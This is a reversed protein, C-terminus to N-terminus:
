QMKQQPRTFIKFWSKKQGDHFVWNRPSRSCTVMKSMTKKFSRKVRACTSLEEEFLRCRVSELAKCREESPSRRDFELEQDRGRPKVNGSCSFLRRTLVIDGDEDTFRDTVNTGHGDIIPSTLRHANEDDTLGLRSIIERSPDVLPSDIPFKQKSLPSCSFSVNSTMKVPTIYSEPGFRHNVIFMM